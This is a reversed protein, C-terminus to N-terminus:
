LLEIVHEGGHAPNGILCRARPDVVFDLMELPIQGLLPSSEDPVEMVDVTCSRDQITVRVASYLAAQASGASTIVRKESQKTLALQRIISTPLSLTTAGTDVLAEEITVRRVQDDTRHGREVEYLDALNEVTAEVLVRGMTETEM